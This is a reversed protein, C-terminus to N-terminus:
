VDLFDNEEFAATSRTRRFPLSLGEKFAWLDQPNGWAGPHPCAM